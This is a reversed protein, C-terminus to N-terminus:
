VQEELVSWMSLDVTDWLSDGTSGYHKVLTLKVISTITAFIGLGMLASLVIKDRLPRQMKRIFTIPLLAFILDTIISIAANAYISAYASEAKTCRAGSVSPDWLARLPICQLLQFVISAIGSAIQIAIMAYLFALWAKSRKIRLLMCAISIKTLMMAIAWPVQSAFLWHQAIAQDTPDVYFNHRGVGHAISVIFFGWGILAVMIGLTIIHDDWGLRPIPRLRSHIRTGWLLLAVVYLTGTVGLLKPAHDVDPGP